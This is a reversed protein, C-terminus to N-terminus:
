ARCDLRLLTQGVRLFAYLHCSHGGRSVYSQWLCFRLAGALWLAAHGEGPLWAAFVCVDYARGSPYLSAEFGSHHHACGAGHCHYIPVLNVYYKPYRISKSFYGAAFIFLPMHFSYIFQYVAQTTREANFPEMFHGIVVLLILIFKLNDFYVDREHLREQM